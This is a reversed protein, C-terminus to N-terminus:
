AGSERIFDSVREGIMICTVNTAAHPVTPIISADAVYLNELGHMKLRNDVVAMPNSVPGMMCTGSGHHHSDYTSRAYEAWDDSPGPVMLNGYFPRMLDDQMFDYVFHMATTMAAIDDPHQLMGDDIVPLEHPDTSSLYIRGRSRQEVLNVAIPMM